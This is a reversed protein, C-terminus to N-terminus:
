AETKYLRGHTNPVNFRVHRWAAIYIIITVRRQSLHGFFALNTVCGSEIIKQVSKVFFLAQPELAQYSAEM